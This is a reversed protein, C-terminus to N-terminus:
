IIILAIILPGSFSRTKSIESYLVGGWMTRLSKLQFEQVVGGSPYGVDSVHFHLLYKHVVFFSVRRVTLYM